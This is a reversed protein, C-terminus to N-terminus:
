KKIGTIIIRPISRHIFGVAKTVELGAEEYLRTLIEQTMLMKHFNEDYTEAGYMCDIFNEEPIQRWQDMARGMDVTETEVFGGKKVCRVWEKVMPGVEFRSFHEILNRSAIGALEGDQFPLKKVDSVVDVGPLPRIDVNVAGKMPFEGCGLFGIKNKYKM